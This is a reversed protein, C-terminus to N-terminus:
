CFIYGRYSVTIGMESPESSWAQADEPSQEFRGGASSEHASKTGHSCGVAHVLLVSLESPLHSAIPFTNGGQVM